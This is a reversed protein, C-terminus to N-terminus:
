GGSDSVWCVPLERYLGRYRARVRHQLGMVGMACQDHGAFYFQADLYCACEQAAGPWWLVASSGTSDDDFGPGIVGIGLGYGRCRDQCSGRCVGTDAVVVRCETGRGMHSAVLACVM